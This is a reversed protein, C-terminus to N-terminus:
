MGESKLKVSLTVPNSYLYYAGFSEGDIILPIRVRLLVLCEGPSLVYITGDEVKLVDQETTPVLELGDLSCAKGELSTIVPSFVSELSLKDGPHAEGDSATFSVPLGSAWFTFNTTLGYMGLLFDQAFLTRANYTWPWATLGVHRGANIMPYSLKVNSPNYTGNYVGIASNLVLLAESTDGGANQIIKAHNEYPVDKRPDFTTGSKNHIDDYGLCGLPMQPWNEVMAQLIPVNFSIVVMQDTMGYENALSKLEDVIATNQSKIEIFHIIDTDRFAEFLERLSPIKDEPSLDIMGYESDKAPTHNKKQVGNASDNDFPIAQLQALTLSEVDTIEPQNFLRKMAKDHLVFIEGDSSLYIDYELINAGAEAAAKESRLTNEVYVSPLGRHGIILPPRLLIPVDAKFLSLADYVSQYNETMLGNVGYTLLTLINKPDDDARVWVTILRRQLYKIAERTATEKSILAIKAGGANTVAVVQGLEIRTMERETKTFDILGWTTPLTKNIKAALAANEAPVAVLVTQKNNEQLSLFENLTSAIMSGSSGFVKLTDDVTVFASNPHVERTFLTPDAEKMAFAVTAPMAIANDPEYTTEAIGNGTIKETCATMLALCIAMCIILRLIRIM